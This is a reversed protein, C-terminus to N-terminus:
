TEVYEKYDVGIHLHEISLCVNYAFYRPLKMDDQLANVILLRDALLREAEEDAYGKAGLPLLWSALCLVKARESINSKIIMQASLIINAEIMERLDYVTGANARCLLRISSKLTAEPICFEIM